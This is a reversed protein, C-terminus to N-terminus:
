CRSTPCAKGKCFTGDGTYGMKCACLYSPQTNLCVANLSCSHQGTTCKDIDSCTLLHFLFSSAHNSCTKFLLQFFLLVSYVQLCMLIIKMFLIYKNFPPWATDGWLTSRIMDACNSLSVLLRGQELLLVCPLTPLSRKSPISSAWFISKLPRSPM